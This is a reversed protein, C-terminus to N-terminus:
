SARAIRTNRKRIRLERLHKKWPKRVQPVRKQSADERMDDDQLYEARINSNFSLGTLSPYFVTSLLSIVGTDVERSRAFNALEEWDERFLLVPNNQGKEVDQTNAGEIFARLSRIQEDRTLFSRLRLLEGSACARLDAIAQFLQNKLSSFRKKLKMTRADIREMVTELVEDLELFLISYPRVLRFGAAGGVFSAAHSSAASEGLDSLVHLVVLVFVRYDEHRIPALHEAIRLLIHANNLVNTVVSMGYPYLSARIKAFFTKQFVHCMNKSAGGSGKEERASMQQVVWGPHQSSPTSPSFLPADSERTIQVVSDLKMTNTDHEWLADHM